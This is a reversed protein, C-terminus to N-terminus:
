HHVLNSPSSPCDGPGVTTVESTGPEGTTACIDRTQRRRTEPGSSESVCVPPDPTTVLAPSEHTQTRVWPTPIVKRRPRITRNPANPTDDPPPLLTEGEGVDNRFPSTQPLIVTGRVRVCPGVVKPCPWVGPDWPRSLRPRARCAVWETRPPVPRLSVTGQVRPSPHRVHRRPSPAPRGM